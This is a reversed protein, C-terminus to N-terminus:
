VATIETITVISLRTGVSFKRRFDEATDKTDCRHIQIAELLLGEDIAEIGITMVEAFEGDNYEVNGDVRKRTLMQAEENLTHGLGHLQGAGLLSGDGNASEM